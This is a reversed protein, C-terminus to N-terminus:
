IFLVLLCFCVFLCVFLGEGVRPRHPTVDIQAVQKVAATPLLSSSEISPPRPASKAPASVMTAGKGSTKAISVPNRNGSPVAGSPKTM